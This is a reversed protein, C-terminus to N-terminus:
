LRGEDELELNPEESVDSEDDEDEDEVTNRALGLLAAVDNYITRSALPQKVPAQCGAFLGSDQLLKIGVAVHHASM